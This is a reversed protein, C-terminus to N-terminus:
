FGWDIEEKVKKPEEFITKINVNTFGEDIIKIGSWVRLRKKGKRMMTCKYNLKSLHEALNAFTLENRQVEFKNLNLEKWTTWVSRLDSDSVSYTKDFEVSEDFFADFIQKNLEVCEQQIRNQMSMPLILDSDHPCYKAYSIKCKFLFYPLEAVLKDEWSPDGEGLLPTGEITRIIEGNEDTQYLISKASEPKNIKFLVLRSVEHEADTDIDLMVNGNAWVHGKFAAMFSNKGKYEVDAEDGGTMTHIIQSKLLMRNKNDGITVLQKNWVKAFGFNNNLSNKQVAFQAEKIPSFAARLMASKGSRGHPDYLYILQRSRNKPNYVQWIAAKFVEAEEETDFREKLALDWIQCEGEQVLNKLDLKIFAYDDSNSDTYPLPQYNISNSYRGRLFSLNAQFKMIFEDKSMQTFIDTFETIEYSVTEGSESKNEIAKFKINSNNDLFHELFWSSMCDQFYNSFNSMQKWPWFTFSSDIEFPCSSNMKALVNEKQKLFEPWLVENLIKDNALQVILEDKKDCLPTVTKDNNIWYTVHTIGSDVSSTLFNRGFAKDFDNSKLKQLDQKCLTISKEIGGESKKKESHHARIKNLADNIADKNEFIFIAYEKKADLWKAMIKDNSEKWNTIPKTENILKAITTNFEKQTM